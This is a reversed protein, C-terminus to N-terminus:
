SAIADAGGCVRCSSLKFLAKGFLSFFLVLRNRVLQPRVARGTQFFPLPPPVKAGMELPFPSSIETTYSLATHPAVPLLCSSM